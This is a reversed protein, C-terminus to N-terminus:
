AADVVSRASMDEVVLVKGGLFDERRADFRVDRTVFVFFEKWDAECLACVNRLESGKAVGVETVDIDVDYIGGDFFTLLLITSSFSSCVGLVGVEAHFRLKRLLARFGLIGFSESAYV